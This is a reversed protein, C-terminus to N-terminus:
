YGVRTVTGNPPATGGEPIPLNHVAWIAGTTAALTYVGAVVTVKSLVANTTANIRVVTGPNHTGVWISGGAVGLREPSGTLPINAVVLNTAPDIRSISGNPTTTTGFHSVWVAGTTAVIDAGTAQTFISTTVTNTL